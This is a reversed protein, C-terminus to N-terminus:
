PRGIEGWKGGRSHRPLDVELCEAREPQHGPGHLDLTGLLLECKAGLLLLLLLLYLLMVPVKAM